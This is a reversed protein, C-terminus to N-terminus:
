NSRDASAREKQENIWPLITGPEWLAAKDTPMYDPPPLKGRIRWVYLTSAPIGTERSIDAYTFYTTPHERNPVM